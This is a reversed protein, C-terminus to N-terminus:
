HWLLRRCLLRSALPAATSSEAHAKEHKSGPCTAELRLENSCVSLLARDEAASRIGKM